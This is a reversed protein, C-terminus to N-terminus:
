RHKRPTIERSPDQRIARQHRIRNRCCPDAIRLAAHTELPQHRNEMQSQFLRVFAGPFDRPERHHQFHFYLRDPFRACVDNQFLQRKRRTESPFHAPFCQAILQDHRKRDQHHRLADATPQRAIELIPHRRTCRARPDMHHLHRIARRNRFIRRTRQPFGTRTRPVRDLDM